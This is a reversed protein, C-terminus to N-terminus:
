KREERSLSKDQMRTHYGPKYHTVCAKYVLGSSLFMSSHGKFNNFRIEVRPFWLYSYCYLVTIFKGIKFYIFFIRVTSVSLLLYYLHTLRHVMEKQHRSYEFVLWSFLTCLMHECQHQNTPKLLTYYVATKLLYRVIWKGKM